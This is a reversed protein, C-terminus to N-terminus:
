RGSLVCSCVCACMLVCSCVHVCMFVCSCVHVCMFVCSCVHACVFVCLCVHDCVSAWKRNRAGRSMIKEMQEPNNVVFTSLDKVYVGVDPREKVQVSFFPSSWPPVCKAVCINTCTCCACRWSLKLTRGWCTELMRMTSRLTHCMSWFGEGLFSSSFPICHPLLLVGCKRSYFTLLQRTCPTLSPLFTQVNVM